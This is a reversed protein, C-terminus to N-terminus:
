TFAHQLAKGFIQLAKRLDKPSHAVSIFNAEFQSPALYLGARRAYHYFRSFLETESKKASAYDRVPIPTFFLTFMSGSTNLQVPYQKKEIELRLRDFFSEAKRNLTKLTKGGKLQSLMWLAAAVAAPNGSLTGAQYVPGEPALFDMIKRQGGFVALPFGGGVIKGLCTLDPMMAFMQQAGGGPFRFGTIVEDFILLTGSRRTLIRALSLFGPDPRVVGMNAPVPELIFAALNKGERRFINELQRTDNLPVSLTLNALEEPIGASDPVGFTAAGSGAKVLLSDVHGHYGGDIKLIKKRGTFGRALRIASMVAETGSNVLRCKEISPFIKKIQEALEVEARTPAGFSTGHRITKEVAKILGRPAHGFLLPGWSSCFDIYKKGDEDWLYAGAGRKVFIPNGGVARFARVPSNVGSPIAQLARHYLQRSRLGSSEAKKKKM